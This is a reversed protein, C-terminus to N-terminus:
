DKRHHRAHAPLGHRSSRRATRAGRVLAASRSPHLPRECARAPVLALMEPEGPEEVEQASEIERPRLFWEFTDGSIWISHEGDDNGLVGRPLRTSRLRGELRGRGSPSRVGLVYRKGLM